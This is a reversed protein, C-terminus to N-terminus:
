KLQQATSRLFSGPSAQTPEPPLLRSTRLRKTSLTWWSARQRSPQRGARPTRHIQLWDLCTPISLPCRRESVARQASFASEIQAWSTSQSNLSAAASTQSNIGIQLLLDRVVTYGDFSVGGDQSTGNGALAVSSFDAVQRDYGPTNANAINNNTVTLAGSDAELAQTALSLNGSIGFM